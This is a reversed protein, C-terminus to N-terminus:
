PLLLPHLVQDGPALGLRAVTGAKLELVAKVPEGSPIVTESLPVANRATAVVTGDRAIFLMDLAVLTNKMWMTVPQERDYIFLMGADDDLTERFMLGQARQETTTALEIRIHHRTGDATKITLQSSEFDLARSAVPALLTAVALALGLFRRRHLAIM